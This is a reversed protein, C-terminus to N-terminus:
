RSTTSDNSVIVSPNQAFQTLITLIPFLISNLHSQPESPAKSKKRSSREALLSNGKPVRKGEELIGFFGL